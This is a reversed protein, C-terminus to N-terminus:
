QMMYNLRALSEIFIDVGKNSFENRGASFFYLTKNLNFDYHGYFHGKVFEHIKEKYMSHQIQFEHAVEFRKISLGNPTIVDPERKLLHKVELATIESVTTLVHACHASVREICYRHYINRQGAEYDLNYKDMNNYFDTKGSACLYRGLLTAHTTFITAVNVKNIRMYLVGLGAQWEHYHAVIYKIDNINLHNNTINNNLSNSTSSISMDIKEKQHYIPNKINQEFLEIFWSATFGFILADNAERDEYPIGINSNESFQSFKYWKFYSHM